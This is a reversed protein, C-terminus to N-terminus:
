GSIEPLAELVRNRTEEVSGDGDIEKVLGRKRYYDILPATQTEYVRLRARVTKERDDERQYLEGDCRDCINERRPPNFETHFLTGCRKCTRRGALRRIIVDQPARIYLVCDLGIDMEGLITELSDAQAVTRPFGDLIFGKRCDERRLREAVLNVMVDGPVLEGKALYRAAKKGLPTKEEVAKRLIEGTSVRCVAYRQQIFKAQTGKGAGPPGLLVLRV